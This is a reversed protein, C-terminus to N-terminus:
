GFISLLANLANVISNADGSGPLGSTTTEAPLASTTTEAPLASTTTEAPLVLTTTEAPLALTTTEAPLALTTTEAPLGSTTTEAPLASTTTEAPLASTTTEAPPARRECGNADSSINENFTTRGGGVNLMKEFIAVFEADFDRLNRLHNQLEVRARDPPQQPPPPPPPPPLSPFGIDRSGSGSGKGGKRKHLMRKRVGKQVNADPFFLMDSSLRLLNDSVFRLIGNVTNRTWTNALTTRIYKVGSTVRSFVGDIGVVETHAAAGNIAHAGITLVAFENLSFGIYQNHPAMERLESINPDPAASSSTVVPEQDGCKGRNYKFNIIKCPYAREVAVKGAFAIV